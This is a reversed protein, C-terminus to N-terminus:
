TFLDHCIESRMLKETGTSLLEHESEADDILPSELLDTEEQIKKSGLAYLLLGAVIGLFCVVDLLNFSTTSDGAIFRLSFAISTLPVKVTGLLLTFTVSGDLMIFVYAARIASSFLIYLCYIKFAELCNDCTPILTPGCNETITNVGYFICKYGNVCLKYLSDFYGKVSNFPLTFLLTYLINYFFHFLFGFFQYKVVHFFKSTYQKERLASAISDPVSALLYLMNNYFRNDTTDTRNLIPKLVAFTLIIASSIYQYHHYKKSLILKCSVMTLPVSIQGLLVLMLGSTHASGNASLGTSLMDLFGLFVLPRVNFHRKMYERNFLFCLIAICCVIIWFTFIIVQITFMVYNKTHDIFRKFFVTTLVDLIVFLICIIGFSKSYIWKFCARISKYILILLSTIRDLPSNGFSNDSRLTGSSSSASLDLSSGEKLM